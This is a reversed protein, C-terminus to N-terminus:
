LKTENKQKGENMKKKEELLKNREVERENFLKEFDKTKQVTIVIFKSLKGDEIVTTTEYKAYTIYGLKKLAEGVRIVQAAASPRARIDVKEKTKLAQKVVYMYWKAPNKNSLNVVELKTFDIPKKVPKNEISM